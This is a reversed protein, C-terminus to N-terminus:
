KNLESQCFSFEGVKGLLNMQWRWVMSDTWDLYRRAKQKTPAARAKKILDSIKQAKEDDLFYLNKSCLRDPLEYEIHM